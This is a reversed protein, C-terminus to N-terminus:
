VLDLTLLLRRENCMLAPSRHVLGMSENGEWGSGKLLAVDGAQMQQIALDNNFLGSLDDAIGVSARGLKSRDIDKNDLWQTAIGNYTTVLRCPIQDVHFKPCMASDLMTLRLGAEEVDFLCCFMDVILAIDESLAETCAYGSLKDQIYEAANDPSVCKVLALAKRVGLMEGIAEVSETPLTRKWIAINHDPSYIDTLITSESDTPYTPKNQVSDVVFSSHSIM